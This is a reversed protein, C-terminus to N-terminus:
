FIFLWEKYLNPEHFFHARRSGQSILLCHGFIQSNKWCMLHNLAMCYVSLIEVASITIDAFISPRVAELADMSNSIHLLSRQLHRWSVCLGVFRGLGLIAPIDSTASRGWLFYPIVIRM